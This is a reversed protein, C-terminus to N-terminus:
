IRHDLTVYINKKLIMFEFYIVRLMYDVFESNTMNMKFNNPMSMKCNVPVTFQLYLFFVYYLVRMM